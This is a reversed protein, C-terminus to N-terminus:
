DIFGDKKLKQDSLYERIVLTAIVIIVVLIAATITVKTFVEISLPEFWLQTIALVGWLISIFLASFVGYKM